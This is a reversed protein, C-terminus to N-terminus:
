VREYYARQARCGSVRAPPSNDSDEVENKVASPGGTIFSGGSAFVACKSFRDQPYDVLNGM